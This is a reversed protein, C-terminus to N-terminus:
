TWGRGGPFAVLQFGCHKNSAMSSCTGLFNQPEFVHGRNLAATKMQVVYPNQGVGNREGRVYANPPDRQKHIHTHTQTKYSRLRIMRSEKKKIVKPIAKMTNRNEQHNDQKALFVFHKQMCVCM